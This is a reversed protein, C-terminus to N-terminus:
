RVNLVSATARGMVGFAVSGVVFRKLRSKGSDSVVIVAHEAGAEVIQEVPDGVGVATGAVQIGLDELMAKARAVVEEARPQGEHDPTVSFLTIPNGCYRALVAARRVADFSQETGDTCILYGTRQAGGRALLVSCPSLMAVKQVIGADWFSRFEGQWRSPEGLTILNYPGLEYQDLIGSVVDPATKLKLVISKGSEHRYEIKNDGLPDGWVDTHTHTADWEKEMHGAEILMDFGRKLNKIGPLELGWDLMNERAVRLQLGGTRLGQDGPRVYALIIDSEESRGIEAAFRLGEYAEDSGDICVLIRFRKSRWARREDAEEQASLDFRM